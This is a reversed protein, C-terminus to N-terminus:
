NYLFKDFFNCIMQIFPYYVNNMFHYMEWMTEYLRLDVKWTQVGFLMNSSM